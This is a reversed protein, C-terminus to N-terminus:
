FRYNVGLMIVPFFPFSDLDSEITKREKEVDTQLRLLDAGVLTSNKLNLTVDSHGHYLLGIDMMFGWGKKYKQSKYGIGMYPSFNEFSVASDLTGLQAQTYVNDGIKYNGSSPTAIGSARNDAYYVGLSLYFAREKAPYYDVVIGGTFLDLDGEYEIQERSLSSHLKIGNINARLHYQSSLPMSIDFGAGLTGFKYSTTYHPAEELISIPKVTAKETGDKTGKYSDAFVVSLSLLMYLLVRNGQQKM